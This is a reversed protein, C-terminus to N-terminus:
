GNRICLLRFRLPAHSSDSCTLTRKKCDAYGHRRGKQPFDSSQVLAKGYPDAVVIDDDILPKKAEYEYNRENIQYGYYKGTLDGDIECEFVQSGDNKM